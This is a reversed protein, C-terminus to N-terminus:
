DKANESWKESKIKKSNDESIMSMSSRDIM